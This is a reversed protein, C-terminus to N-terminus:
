VNIHVKGLVPIEEEGLDLNSNSGNLFTESVDEIGNITIIRAEIQATRVTLNNQNAWDRRLSLFYDEIAEYIASEIQGLTTGAELVVSMEVEITIAEAGTITVAHGIPAFGLGLGNNLEPDVETQVTEILEKNPESYDSAIITCKVTGGGQWTPYVKTGGVGDLLNIKRKYDAVNGGFAPEKVIDFYRQRLQEDDEEDAGPVILDALEARGLQNVPEVPVLDGYDLNGATGAIKATARYDGPAVRDNIEYNITNLQFLTGNPVSEHPNGDANTINVKRVAFTAPNRIVGFEGVRRDLDEGDATDAFVRLMLLEMYAYTEAMEMAAPALADYIISGERKDVKDTVRDLMDQLINEFTKHEFM